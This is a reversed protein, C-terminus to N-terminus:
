KVWREWRCNKCKGKGHIKLLKFRMWKRREEESNIYADQPIGKDYLQCTCYERERVDIYIIRVLMLGNNEYKDDHRLISPVFPGREGHEWILTGEKKSSFSFGEIIAWKKGDKRLIDFTWTKPELDGTNVIKYHTRVQGKYKPYSGDADEYVTNALYPLLLPYNKIIKVDMANATNRWSSISILLAAFAIIIGVFACVQESTLMRKKLGM